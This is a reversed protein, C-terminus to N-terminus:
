SLSTKGTICAVPTKTFYHLAEASPFRCIPWVNPSALQKHLPGFKLLVSDKQTPCVGSCPGGPIWANTPPQPKQNFPVLMPGNLGQPPCLEGVFVCPPLMTRGQCRGHFVLGLLYSLNSSGSRNRTCKQSNQRVQTKICLRM